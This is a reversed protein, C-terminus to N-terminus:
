FDTRSPAAAKIISPDVLEDVLKKADKAPFLGMGIGWEAIGVEQDRVKRRFEGPWTLNQIQKAVAEVSPGKVVENAVKAADMPNKMIWDAAAILGKVTKVALDRQGKVIDERMVVNGSFLLGDEENRRYVRAKPVTEGAKSVYPEWSFFAQIDNRALAAIQDPADMFRLTVKDAAIKNRQLFWALHYHAGSGRQVGISKGVFDADKSIAENVVSANQKGTQYGTMIQVIKGGRARAALQPPETNNTIDARGAVVGQLAGPSSDFLQLQANVGEKSLFGHRVAVILLTNDISPAVGVTLNAPQAAASAACLMALVFVFRRM